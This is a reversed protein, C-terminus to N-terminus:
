VTSPVLFNSFAVSTKERVDRPQSIQLGVGASVGDKSDLVMTLANKPCKVSVIRGDHTLQFQQWPSNPDSVQTEISLDIDNGNCDVNPRLGLAMGNSNTLTFKPPSSVAYSPLLERSPLKNNQYLCTCSLADVIQGDDSRRTQHKIMMGTQSSYKPLGQCFNFCSKTDDGNLQFPFSPHNTSVTVFATELRDLADQCTGDMPNELDFKAPRSGITEKLTVCPTRYWEGGANECAEESIGLHWPGNKLCRM